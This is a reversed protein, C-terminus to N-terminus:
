RVALPSLRHLRIMRCIARDDIAVRMDKAPALIWAVPVKRGIRPPPQPPGLGAEAAGAMVTPVDGAGDSYTSHAHIAGALDIWDSEEDSPAATNQLHPEFLFRGAVADFFGTAFLVSAAIRLKTRLSSAMKRIYKILLPGSM